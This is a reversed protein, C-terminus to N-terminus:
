MLAPVHLAHGLPSHLCYQPTLSNGNPTFLYSVSRVPPICVIPPSNIPLNLDLILMEGGVGWEATRLEIQLKEPKRKKRLKSWPSPSRHCLCLFCTRLTIWRGRKELMELLRQEGQFAIYGDTGRERNINYRCQAGPM